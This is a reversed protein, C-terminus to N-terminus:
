VFITSQAPITSIQYSIDYLM